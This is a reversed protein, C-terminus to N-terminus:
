FKWYRKEIYRLPPYTLGSFALAMEFGFDTGFPPTPNLKLAVHGVYFTTSMGLVAGVWGIGLALFSAVGLPLRRPNDLDELNWNRFSGKRFIYHEQVM